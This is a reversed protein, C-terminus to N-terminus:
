LTERPPTIEPVSVGNPITYINSIAKRRLKESIHDAISIVADTRKLQNEGARLLIKAVRGWKARDYDFGHHTSVVKFGFFKVLPVFLSPGIGHIHVVDPKLYLLYLSAVFTHILTELQKIKPCWLPIINVGKYTYKKKSVYPSRALVSVKHGFNFILPYLNQCHTEIGGQIDPFGRLGIVAIHM